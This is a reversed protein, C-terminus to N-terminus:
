AELNSGSEGEEEIAMFVAEPAIPNNKDGLARAVPSYFSSSSLSGGFPTVAARELAVIM